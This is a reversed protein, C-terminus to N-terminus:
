AITRRSFHLLYNFFELGALELDLDKNKPKIVVSQNTESELLEFSCAEQLLDIVKKLADRSYIKPNIYVKVFGEQPNVQIGKMRIKRSIIKGNEAM